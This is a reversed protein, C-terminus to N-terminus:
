STLRLGLNLVNQLSMRVWPYTMAMNIPPHLYAGEVLLTVICGVTVRSSVKRGCKHEVSEEGDREVERDEAARRQMRGNM